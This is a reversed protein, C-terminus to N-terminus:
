GRKIKEEALRKKSTHILMKLMTNPPDREATDTRETPQPQCLPHPYNCPTRGVRWGQLHMGRVGERM